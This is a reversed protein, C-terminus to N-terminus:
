LVSARLARAQAALTHATTSWTALRVAENVHGADRIERTLATTAYECALARSALADAAAHVAGPTPNAGILVNRLRSSAQRMNRVHNTLTRAHEGLEGPQTIFLSAAVEVQGLERVLEACTNWYSRTVANDRPTRRNRLALMPTRGDPSM